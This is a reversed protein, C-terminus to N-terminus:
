PNNQESQNIEQLELIFKHMKFSYSNRFQVKMGAYNIKPRGVNYKFRSIDNHANHQIAPPM